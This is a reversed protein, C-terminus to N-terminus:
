PKIWNGEIPFPVFWAIVPIMCIGFVGCLFGLEVKEWVAENTEREALVTVQKESKKRWATFWALLGHTVGLTLLTAAVSTLHWRKFGCSMEALFITTLLAQCYALGFWYHLIHKGRLILNFGGLQLLLLPIGWGRVVGSVPILIFTGQLDYFDPFTLSRIGYEINEAIFLHIWEGATCALVCLFFRGIVTRATARFARIPYDLWNNIM